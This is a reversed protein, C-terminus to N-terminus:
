RCAGLIPRCGCSRGAKCCPVFGFEPCTGDACDRASQCRPAPFIAVGTDPIAADGLSAGSDTPTGADAPAMPEVPPPAADRPGTARNAGADRASIASTSTGDAPSADRTGSSSTSADRRATPPSEDLGDDREDDDREDDRVGADDESAPARRWDSGIPSLACSSAPPILMGLMLHLVAARRRAARIGHNRLV